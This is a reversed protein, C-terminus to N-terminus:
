SQVISSSHDARLTWEQLTFLLKGGNFVLVYTILLVTKLKEGVALPFLKVGNAEPFTGVSYIARWGRCWM